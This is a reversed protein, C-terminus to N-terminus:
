GGAWEGAVCRGKDGGAPLAGGGVQLCYEALLRREDPGARQLVPIM